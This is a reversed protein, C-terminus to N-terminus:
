DTLSRKVQVTDDDLTGQDKGESVCALQSCYLASANPDDFIGTEYAYVIDHLVSVAQEDINKKAAHFDIEHSESM